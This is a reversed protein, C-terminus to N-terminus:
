PVFNLSSFKTIENELEDRECKIVHVYKCIPDITLIITSYFAVHYKIACSDCLSDCFCM